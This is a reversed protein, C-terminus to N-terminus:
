ARTKYPSLRDSASNREFFRHNNPRKLRIPNL